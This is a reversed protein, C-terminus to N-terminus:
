KMEFGSIYLKEDKAKFTTGASFQNDVQAYESYVPVGDVALEGNSDVYAYVHREGGITHSEGPSLPIGFNNKIESDIEHGVLIIGRNTNQQGTFEIKTGGPFYLKAKEERYYGFNNIIEEGYVSLSNLYSGSNVTVLWDEGSPVTVTNDNDTLTEQVIPQNEPFRRGSGGLNGVNVIDNGNMNLDGESSIGSKAEIIENAILNENTTLTANAKVPTEDFIFDESHDIIINASAFGALLILSFSLMFGKNM